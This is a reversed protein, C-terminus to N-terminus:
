TLASEVAAVAARLDDAAFPFPTNLAAFMEPVTVTNGLGIARKYRQIASRHDQQIERWMQVAAFQGYAYELGFLPRFIIPNAVLWGFARQDELGSYDVGPMFREILRAWQAACQAPDVAAEPHVYAWHQFADFLATDLWFDLARMWYDNQARLLDEGQYFEDWYPMSLVEMVMSPTEGFDTPTMMQQIYRHGRICAYHSFAHGLEHMMGVMDGHTGTLNMFLFTGTGFIVRTFGGASGRNKANNLNLLDLARMEDFYAGFEPDIRYFVRSSKEVLDDADTFPKLPPKGSSDVDLDWPRLTEVGLQQRRKELVRTFVPVVVAEIAEHFRLSDAPTYDFRGLERFRYDIYNPFHAVTALQRRTDLLQTWHATLAARDQARRAILVHWAQERVARDQDKFALDLQRLTLEKGQWIVTQAGFISNCEGCLRAEENLLPIAAESFLEGSVKMARVSTELGPPLITEHELIRTDTIEWLRQALPFIDRRYVQTRQQLDDDATNLDAAIELRAMCAQFLGGLKQTDLLWGDISDASLPRASLEDIYPQIQDATWTMFDSASDPLAM